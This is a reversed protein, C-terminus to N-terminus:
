IFCSPRILWLIQLWITQHQTPTLPPTSLLTSSCNVTLKMGHVAKTCSLVDLQQVNKLFRHELLKSASPREAPNRRFCCHLFDKGDPSMSDPIPPSERLVKFMAAPQLLFPVFTVLSLYCPSPISHLVLNAFYYSQLQAMCVPWVLFNM